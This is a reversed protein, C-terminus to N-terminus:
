GSGLLLGYECGHLFGQPDNRVEDGREGLGRRRRIGVQGETAGQAFAGERGLGAFEDGEGDSFCVGAVIADGGVSVQAVMRSKGFVFNQICSAAGRGIRLTLGSEREDSLNHRLATMDSALINLGETAMPEGVAFNDLDHGVRSEIDEGVVEVMYGGRLDIEGDRWLKFCDDLEEVDVATRDGMM